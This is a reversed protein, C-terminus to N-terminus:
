VTPINEVLMENGTKDYYTCAMSITDVTWKEVGSRACDSCFTPYNTFGKQHSKLDNIFKVKDSLDSVILSAYKPNSQVEINDKGFYLTHGDAVFTQYSVVGLGILDQVYNPFDSGSKVKSHAANIKKITLM